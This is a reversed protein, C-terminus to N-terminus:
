LVSYGRYGALVLFIGFIIPIISYALLYPTYTSKRGFRKFFNEREEGFKELRSARLFFMGIGFIIAFAGLGVTVQNM